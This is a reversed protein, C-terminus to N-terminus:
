KGQSVLRWAALFEGIGESEATSFLKQFYITFAQSVEDETFCFFGDEDLIKSILNVRRRHNACM